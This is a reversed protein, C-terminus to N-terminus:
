RHLLDEIIDSWSEYDMAGIVSQEGSDLTIVHGDGDVFITTPVYGTKFQDFENLLEQHRALESEAKSVRGRQRMKWRARAGAKRCGKLHKPGQLLLAPFKVNGKVPLLQGIIQVQLAGGEGLLQPPHPPLPQDPHPFGM